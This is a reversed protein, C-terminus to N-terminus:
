RSDAIKGIVTVNPEFLWWTEERTLQLDFQSARKPTLRGFVRNFGHKEAQQTHPVLTVNQALV